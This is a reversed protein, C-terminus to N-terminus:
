RRASLAAVVALAVLVAVIATTQVAVTPNRHAEGYRELRRWLRAAGLEASWVSRRGAADTLRGLADLLAAIPGIYLRDIDPIDGGTPALRDRAWWFVLGTVGLLAASEAFHALTFPAYTADFPLLAYLTAGPALGTVVCVGAALAMGLLMSRPVRQEVTAIHAPGAFAFWPLKLGVSLFTGAAALQLLGAVVRHGEYGAASVIMSKSVFGNLFPVGSISAAGIVTLIMVARLMPALGGLESLRERGTAHMVAGAGMLLLGKYYIHAFAHSGTGNLALASGLGVGAVMYGVQSIIHYSLLRRMEDQLLAFSVGVLAMGAGIPVLLDLGAFSRALAYVAAKTTFAALFVSGFISARPYSYPLWAHLPPAAANVLMGLLILWGSVGGDWLQDLGAGHVPLRLLIGVLLLTAGILHMAVYRLGAGPSEPTRGQWITFLSAVTLWEWGIFLTLLDGATVVLLAGAVLAAQTPAASRDDDSWAYVTAVFAYGAFAYAFLRSLGDMSLLLWDHGFRLIGVSTGDPLGSIAALALSAAVLGAVRQLARPLFWGVLALVLFPLAPHQALPSM